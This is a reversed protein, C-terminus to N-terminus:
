YTSNPATKSTRSPRRPAPSYLDQRRGATDDQAGGRGGDSDQRRPRRKRAVRPGGQPFHHIPGSERRTVLISDDGEPLGPEQFGGSASLLFRRKQLQRVGSGHHHRGQQRRGGPRHDRGDHQANDADDDQLVRMTAIMQPYQELLQPLLVDMKHLDVLLDGLKDSLEDVGDLTDFISRLSWCIPIDFCHKEWYFYSKIPRLFDEFDAFHDRLEYLIQTMEGTKTISDHTYATLEKQLEYLRKMSALQIDMM